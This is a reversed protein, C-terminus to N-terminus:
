FIEQFKSSFVGRGKKANRGKKCKQCKQMEAKKPMFKSILYAFFTPTYITKCVRIINGNADSTQHNTTTALVHLQNPQIPPWKLYKEMTKTQGIRAGVFILLLQSFTESFFKSFTLYNTLCVHFRVTHYTRQSQEKDLAAIQQDCQIRNEIWRLLRQGWM